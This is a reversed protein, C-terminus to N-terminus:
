DGNRGEYIQPGNVYFFFMYLCDNHNRVGFGFSSSKGLPKSYGM